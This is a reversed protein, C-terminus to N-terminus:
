LIVQLQHKKEGPNRFYVAEFEASDKRFDIVQRMTNQNLWPGNQTFARNINLDVGAHLLDLSGIDVSVRDSGDKTRIYHDYVFGIDSRYARFMGGTGEGSISFADYTYSPIAIHPMAPKERYPLEKERNFDLLAARNLAGDQYYMYGYCPLALLTDKTDIYQRSVYGNIFASGSTVKMEIGARATFSFQHSTFPITISPTYTPSAFSITSSFSSGSSGQDKKNATFQSLGTSLQLAKLGSRSNYPASVSISGSNMGSNENSAYQFLRMSLSPAVTLGEQSNNTISLGGSLPGKAGRGSNISANLGYEVGWGKYTNNLVGISAGLKLGTPVTSDEGKDTQRLGVIEVDGGLTVGVTRNERISMTKKVSDNAGNFDDPLGRLNRTVTGPNINWGLGVWSAEQDMTIGGRYSLNVPYGGVDMLPINYSFDGSFLDVMNSANVSSFQQMEPQGPGTTFYHVPKEAKAIHQGSIAPRDKKAPPLWDKVPLKNASVFSSAAVYGARAGLSLVLDCYFLVIMFWAVIKGKRALSIIM